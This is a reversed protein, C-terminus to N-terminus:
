VFCYLEAKFSFCQYMIHLMEEGEKVVAEGKDDDQRRDHEDVFEPMIDDGFPAAHFDIREGDAEAFLKPSEVIFGARAPPEGGQRQATVDFHEAVRRFGARRRGLEVMERRLFALDREMELRQGRLAAITAAPGAALKRSVMRTNM